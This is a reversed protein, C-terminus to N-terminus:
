EAFKFKNNLDSFKNKFGSTTYVKFDTTTVECSVKPISNILNIGKQPGLEFVALSLIDAIM